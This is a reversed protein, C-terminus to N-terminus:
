SYQGRRLLLVRLRVRDEENMELLQVTSRGEATQGQIPGDTSIAFHERWMQRRPHYLAVVLGTNPDISAINPGKKLNCRICCLCLNTSDDSGRHQKGITHDVQHPLISADQPLRCYECLGQARRQVLERVDSSVKM